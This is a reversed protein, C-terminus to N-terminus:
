GLVVGTRKARTVVNELKWEESEEPEASGVCDRRERRQKWTVAESLEAMAMWERGSEM